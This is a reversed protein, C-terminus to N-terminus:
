VQRQVPDGWRVFHALQWRASGRRDTLAIRLGERRMQEEICRMGHRLVGSRREIMRARQEPARSRVAVGHHGFVLKAEAGLIGQEGDM